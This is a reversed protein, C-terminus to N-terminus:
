DVGTFLDNEHLKPTAPPNARMYQDKGGGMRIFWGLPGKRLMGGDLQSAHCASAAYRVEAVTRYNISAHIPFDEDEVLAALDIDHNQGFRRPNLGLLPMLKVAFRLMKRSMVSYYLKQPQFPPLDGSYAPNGALHFARTTARSIAIHDPHGYGGKPDNTIVVQPKLKCIIQAVRQTVEELPSAVLAKPHQNDPSGPMGSDRYDLFHVGALGLVSAACNLEHVRREGISQFGELMEASVHGAEGRTACILHVQVGQRAYLALTGGIGFSEDDPHALAALLVHNEQTM